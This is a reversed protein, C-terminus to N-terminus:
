TADKREPDRFHQFESPVRCERGVVPNTTERGGAGGGQGWFPGRGDVGQRDNIWTHM